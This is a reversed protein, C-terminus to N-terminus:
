SKISKKVIKIASNDRQLLDRAFVDIKKNLESDGTNRVWNSLDNSIEELSQTRVAVFTCMGNPHDLPLNNKPYKGEGLGYLNQTAREQCVPCVRDSNSILWQYCEIFPNNKTVRVFSEQYAHSVMTRALRQANYDVVKKTGPYVKRWEWPKRASPRIYRELDKAIAYSSKNEAIGKAVITHLDKITQKSDGWIAKSLSWRNKYIKGTVVEAIVEKPVYFYAQGLNLGMKRLVRVNNEVVATSAALANKQIMGELEQNLSEINKEIEKLLDDLYARRLVSSVNDRGELSKAHYAIEEAVQEYLRRIERKQANTLKVRQGEAYQFDSAM